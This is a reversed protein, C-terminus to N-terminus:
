SLLLRSSPLCLAAMNQADMMCSLVQRREFRFTPEPLGSVWLGAARPLRLATPNLWSLIRSRPRLLSLVAPM